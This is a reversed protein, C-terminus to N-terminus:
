NEERTCGRRQSPNAFFMLQDWGNEKALNLVKELYM